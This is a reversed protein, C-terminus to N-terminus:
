AAEQEIIRITDGPSLIWAEIEDHAAINMAEDPDDGGEVTTEKRDIEGGSNSLTIILTRKM